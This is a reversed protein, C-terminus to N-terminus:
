DDYPERGWSAYCVAASGYTFCQLTIGLWFPSETGPYASILYIAACQLVIAIFIRTVWPSLKSSNITKPSSYLGAGELATYGLSTSEMYASALITGQGHTLEKRFIRYRALFLAFLLMFFATLSFLGLVWWPYSLLEM